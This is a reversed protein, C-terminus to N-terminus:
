GWATSCTPWWHTAGCAGHASTPPRSGPPCDGPSVVEIRDEYVDVCVNAGEQFWDRHMVANTIAERLAVMPYAPLEERRLGEIRYATRTNRAVFGLSDEIDAVVGGDFEKRDLVDVRGTGRFLMCSVGAQPFFRRPERAFFLVGVNRLRLGGDVREAADTNLLVDEVLAAPSIGSLSRWAEFKLRDFDLPHRFDRNVARDFRVAGERRFFERLEDRTLKRTGAGLRWFFGERCQVPKAVSERVHVVIVRGIPEVEVTVPPDCNRAIDQIRARLENSDGIGSVSGDDRVGLLIRGGLTNALAVLGRAFSESLREKYELMAGEGERLLIDLDAQNM